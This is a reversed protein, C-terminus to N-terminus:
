WSNTKAPDQKGARQTAIRTCTVINNINESLDNLCPLVHVDACFLTYGYLMLM